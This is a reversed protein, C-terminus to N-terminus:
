YRIGFQALFDRVQPLNLFFSGVGAVLATVAVVIGTIIWPRNPGTLSSADPTKASGDSSGSSGSKEKPAITLLFPDSLPGTPTGSTDILQAQVAYAGPQDFEYKLEAIENGNVTGTGLVTGDTLLFRVKQGKGAGDVKAALKVPDGAKADTVDVNEIVPKEPTVPTEPKTEKATVAVTTTEETREFKTADKPIFVAKVTYDGANEPTFTATATGNAVPKTGLSRTGNFFEIEGEANTPNTTATVTITDGAKAGETATLSLSTKAAPKPAPPQPKAGVKVEITQSAPKHTAADAPIFEGRLNHTGEALRLPLEARGSTVNATGLLDRGDYIEVIGDADTPTVTAFVTTDKDATPNESATLTLTTDAAEPSKVKVRVTGSNEHPEFGSGPAPVFKVNVTRTEIPSEFRIGKLVATGNIVPARLERYEGTEPHTDYFVVEGTANTPTVRATLDGPVGAEFAQGETVTVTTKVNTANISVSDSAGGNYVSNAAPIFRAEVTNTGAKPTVTGAARGNEVKSEGLKTGKDDYFEVTGEALQPSVTATLTVPEGANVTDTPAALTVKADEKMMAVIPTSKSGELNAGDAPTFVAVVDRKGPIVFAYEVSATGNEVAAEGMKYDNSYFEVKGGTVPNDGADTVTATYKKKPEGVNGTAPGEITTTTDKVAPPTATVTLTHAADAATASANFADRDNPIFEARITHEGPAFVQKLEATGATVDIRALERDGELFRVKGAANNPTVTATITAEEGENKANDGSLEVKTNEAAKVVKVTGTAKNGGLVNGEPTFVVTITQDDAASDLTAKISAIGNDGVLAEGLKDTDATSDGKFFTVTGKANTPTIRATLTGEQGATLTQGDTLKVSSEQKQGTVTVTDSKSANNSAQVPAFRAEFTRPTTDQPTYNFTAKNNVVKVDGSLQQPNAADTVDWFTVNGSVLQPSVTATLTVPTGISPNANTVALTTTTDAKILIKADAARSPLYTTNGDAPVYQATVTQTGGLTFTHNAEAVGNAVNAEALVTNGNRFVVKGSNVPDNSGQPKVEAKLTVPEGKKGDTAGTYATTTEFQNASVTLMHAADDATQSENFETADAPTFEARITHEGVPLKINLTAKGQDNVQETGLLSDGEYFRVTGATVPNTGATVTATIAAEEDAKKATDGDLAISTDAAVKKAVVDIEGTGQQAAFNPNTPTFKVTITKNEAATNFTVSDLTATGNTVTATGLSQTGDLFEVTGEANDPTVRATLTGPEDVTFTTNGELAVTIGVAKPSITLKASTSAVTGATGPVFRAEVEIPTTNGPTLTYTARGNSVTGEGLEKDNTLDYFVVRGAANDPSVNATLTVPSGVTPAPNSATLTTTSTAKILINTPTNIESALFKSGDAPVFELTLKEVKAETFTKDFTAEGNRVPQPQGIQQGDLKFIVTGSNIVENGTQPDVKAKMWLKVGQTGETPGSYTITTDVKAEAVNIVHNDTTQSANYDATNAPLFEARIQHEGATFSRTLEAKGNAVDITDLENNGEFFRVRGTAEAPTVEATVTVDQGDTATAPGTLKVTTNEAAKVVKVTGESEKPAFNSGQAPTFKVAIKKSEAPTTFTIDDKTAVGNTVTATGLSTNNDEVDFFEVTGAANNPFVTATLNNPQGVTFTQGDILGVTANLAQPTITTAPASKSAAYAKANTGTPTFRAEVKKEGLTKPSYQATAKGNNVTVTKGIQQPNQPDTIDYFGITGQINPTVTANLFVPSGVAPTANSVTLTTTTENAKIEFTSESPGSANFRSNAPPLYEVKVTHNGPEGFSKDFVSIGESNLPQPQGIQGGNLIFRVTGESVPNGQADTVKARMYSKQGAPHTETELAKITTNVKAQEVKLAHANQTQSETFDTADTPTFKATISYTGQAFKQTLTAEGNTVAQPTGLASGNNYFQVTGAANIPSVKATITVEDDTNSTAPGSLEISTQAAVKLENVTVTGEGESTAFNSDVAPTFVVRVTQEGDNPFTANPVTALGNNVTATGLSDDGLFFEVTGQADAPTVRATLPGEETATFTQNPELAVTSKATVNFSHDDTTQSPLFEAANAPVFEARVTHQGPAFERTLEAKGSTVDVTALTNAGEIFRVQGAAAPDVTTTLTVQDGETATAPGTLSLETQVAAPNVKVTGTTNQSPKYNSNDPTFRVTVIPTGAQNFTADALTATGDVVKAEGIKDNEATSNGRFFEVTGGQNSPTVRASLPGAEGATFTQNANLEVSTSIAQPTIELETSKSGTYVNEAPTFRAEIKKPTTSDPTYSVSARGGSVNQTEGIKVENAPDTVDFFEVTGGVTSPTVNATLTVPTGVAPSTNNASLKTTTTGQILIETTEASTSGKYQSGAVPLYELTLNEVRALTFTKDFVFKGAYEGTTKAAQPEGIQKGDLMFRVKGETIPNGEADTVEALMYLKAGAPSTKPGVYAVTTDVMQREVNVTHFAPASRNLNAEAAPIFEAGVVHNGATAFTHKLEAKGDTVDVTGLTNEGEFFRVQGATGAPGPTATLTVEDGATATAPGTLSVTSAGAPDKVTVTGTADPAAYTSGQAPVYKVTITKDGAADFTVSDLTAIGNDIQAKGLSNDGDFFEIEGPAGEPIIRATLSGSQNTTFAPADILSLSAANATVNLDATAESGSVYQGSPVFRAIVKKAGPTAPTYTTPATYSTNWFNGTKAPTVEAIQTENGDADVEIFHVKGATGSPDITATLSVPTGVRPNNSSARLSTTTGTKTTLEITDSTSGELNSGVPPIYELVLNSIGETGFTKDYVARGQENLARLPSLATGDLTFRVWGETVPNGNGDKVLAVMDNNTGRVFEKTAQPDWTTTTSVAASAVNFTFTNATQSPRYAAQDNPVFEARVTHAGAAFERNLTASGDTVDEVGLETDGELFRVKGAAGSPTVTATIAAAEGAPVSANGTLTVTTNEAAKTVQVTGSGTNEAFNSNEAPVFMVTVTQTGAEGFTANPLTAIGNEVPAEGLTTTGDTFVVKGQANNPSVTATLPGAESATFSQGENLSVTTEYAKATVVLENSTSAENNGGEPVFRAEIRKAGTTTPTYSYTATGNEVTGEGLKTGSDKDYFEVRGTALQPTVTATLTIPSNVTPNENSATLTTTTQSSIVVDAADSKSGKLNSDAAPVFEAVVTQTGGSTFAYKAEAIGNNVPVNDALVTNGSRFTVTGNTVAAPSGQAAVPDVKARLTVDQNQAGQLDGTYTTTTNFESANVTLTHTQTTKSANFKTADAPTFDARIEYVGPEFTRDLVAKGNRVEVPAATLPTNDAYFRVSGAAAPDITATVQANEKDTKVTDGSLTITTNQAVPGKPENRDPLRQEPVRFAAEDMRELVHTDSNYKYSAYQPVYVGPTTPAVFTAEMDYTTGRGAFYSNESQGGAYGPNVKPNSGVGFQPNKIGGWPAPSKTVTKGDATGFTTEGFSGNHRKISGRVYDSGAPPNFGTEFIRSTGFSAVTMAGRLTYQTGAEIVVPNNLSSVALNGGAPGVRFGSYTDSDAGVNDKKKIDVPTTFTKTGDPNPNFGQSDIYRATVTHPAGSTAYTTPTISKTAIGGAGVQALGDVAVGDLYFQVSGSTAGPVSATFEGATNIAINDPGSVTITQQAHAIAASLTTFNAPAIVPAAVALATVGAIATRFPFRKAM